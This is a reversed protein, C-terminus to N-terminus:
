WKWCREDMSEDIVDFMIVQDTIPNNAM